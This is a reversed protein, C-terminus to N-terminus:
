ITIDDETTGDGWNDISSATNVKVGQSTLTLNYTNKKGQVFVQTSADWDFTVPENNISLVFVFKRSAATTPLIIGEALATTGTVTTKMTITAASGKDTLSKDALDFDAGTKLNTISVTLGDLTSIQDDTTINFIVKSLQHSFNLTIADKNQKGTANDSYLLDIAEQSSQDSVDVDYVTGSLSSTYPYYAIFDVLGAKPFYIEDSSSAASFNGDGSTIYRKNAAGDVITSLGANRKMFVGIADNSGWQANAAKTKSADTITSNFTIASFKDEYNKEDSCSSLGIAVVAIAFISKLKM